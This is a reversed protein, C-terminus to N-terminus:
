LIKQACVVAPVGGGQAPISVELLERCPGGMGVGARGGTGPQVEAFSYIAQEELVM